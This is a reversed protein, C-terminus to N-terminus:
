LAQISFCREEGDETRDNSAFRVSLTPLHKFTSLDTDVFPVFCIRAYVTFLFSCWFGSAQDERERM